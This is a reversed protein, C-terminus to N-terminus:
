GVSAYGDLKPPFPELSFCGSRRRQGFLFDWFNDKWIDINQVAAPAVGAQGGHATIAYLTSSSQLPRSSERSPNQM